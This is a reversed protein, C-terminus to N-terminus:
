PPDAEVTGVDRFPISVDWLLALKRAAGGASTDERIGDLPKAEPVAASLSNKNM